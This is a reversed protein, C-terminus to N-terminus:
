PRKLHTILVDWVQDSATYIDIRGEGVEGAMTKGLPDTELYNDLVTGFRQKLLKRWTEIRRSRHLTQLEGEDRLFDRRIMLWRGLDGAGEGRNAVTSLVPPKWNGHVYSEITYKLNKVTEEAGPRDSQNVVFINGIEMIGAKAAQIQDGLGPITVLVVTDATNVVEFETQGTGVTEVLIIEYGGAELLQVVDGTTVALGGLHGRTAMSRVFYNKRKSLNNLRIRDGLLAGGTFPSSPDVCVIGVSFGEDLLWCGLHDVLTSKGAGPPGTIGVVYAEKGQRACAEMIERKAPSENENELINILKGTALLDKALFREWFRSWPM